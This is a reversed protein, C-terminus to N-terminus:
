VCHVARKSLTGTHRRETGTKKKKKKTEFSMAQRRTPTLGTREPLPSEQYSLPMTTWPCGTKVRIGNLDEEVYLRYSSLRILLVCVIYRMYLGFVFSCFIGSCCHWQASKPVDDAHNHRRRGLTPIIDYLAFPLSINRVSCNKIRRRQCCLYRRSLLTTVPHSVGPWHRCLQWRPLRKWKRVGSEIFIHNSEIRASYWM